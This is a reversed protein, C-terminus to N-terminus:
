ADLELAENRAIVSLNDGVCATISWESCRDLEIM